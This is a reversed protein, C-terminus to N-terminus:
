GHVDPEGKIKPATMRLYRKRRVARRAEVVALYKQRAHFAALFPPLAAARPVADLMRQFAEEDSVGHGNLRTKTYVKM